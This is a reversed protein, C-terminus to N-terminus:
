IKQVVGLQLSINQFVGVLSIFLRMLSKEIKAMGELLGHLFLTEDNPRPILKPKCEPNNEPFREGINALPYYELGSSNNPNIEKSLNIIQNKSFYKELVNGGTNSAGGVLWYKGLKHSYLGINLIRM